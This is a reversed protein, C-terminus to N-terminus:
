KHYECQSPKLGCPCETKYVKKSQAIKSKKNGVKWVLENAKQIASKIRMNWDDNDVPMFTKGSYLGIISNPCDIGKHSAWTKNCVSCITDMDFAAERKDTFAQAVEDDTM